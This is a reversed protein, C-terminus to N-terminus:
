QFSILNTMEDLLKAVYSYVLSTVLDAVYYHYRIQYRGFFLASKM